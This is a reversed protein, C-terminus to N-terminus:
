LNRQSAIAVNDDFLGGENGRMSQVNEAKNDDGFFSQM